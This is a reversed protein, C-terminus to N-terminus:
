PVQPKENNRESFVHAYFTPSLLVCFEGLNLELGTRWLPTLHSRDEVEKEEAM